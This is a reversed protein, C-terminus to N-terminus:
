ISRRAAWGLEPRRAVLMLVVYAGGGAVVMAVLRPLWGLDLAAGVAWAAGLCALAGAASCAISRYVGPDFITETTRTTLVVALVGTQVMAGIATALALGQEAMPWILVLNLVLNLVVAGVGIVAPTRTDGRAFFARTLLHNLSYAWVAMAYWRLTGAVRDIAADAGYIVGAAPEAVAVLGASAPMSIFLSLRIGRRLTETYSAGDDAQSALLPFVATAVAIGFVGLPFQYLRSAYYLVAAASEDLPYAVGAITPGVTVPWGAILGDILVGLQLTGMGLMAPLFRRFTERAAPAIGDLAETWRVFPRLAAACWALQLAGAVLVGLAVAIAAQDLALDLAFVAISVAGIMCANLIIPAAAHPAFRGHTQLMGGLIATTCVLPMYPLMVMLCIATLRATDSPDLVTVAVFVVLEGILALAGLGVLLLAVTFSALAPALEPRHKILQAYSPIFAAALAGEGFLRRLLNPVIFATVFASWVASAGFVRACVADRLLGSVRSLLTIGAFTRAHGAFRNNETAGLDLPAGASPFLWRAAVFAGVGVGIGAANAAFDDFAAFRNLAPIAQLAEDIAAYLVGVGLVALPHAIPTRLRGRALWGSAGLLFAWLGFAASHIWLDPRDIPARDIRLAPWHTLTFLLIAYAAFAWRALARIM